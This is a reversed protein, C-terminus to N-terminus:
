LASVKTSTYVNGPLIRSKCLVAYNQKLLYSSNVFFSQLLFHPMQALFGHAADVISNLHAETERAVIGVLASQCLFIQAVMNM